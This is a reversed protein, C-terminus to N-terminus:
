CYKNKLGRAYRQTKKFKNILTKNNKNYLYKLVKTLNIGLLKIKSVLMYPNEQIWKLWIRIQTYFYEQNELSKADQIKRSNM